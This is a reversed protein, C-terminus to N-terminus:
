ESEMTEQFCHHEGENTLIMYDNSDCRTSSKKSMNSKKLKSQSSEYADSPNEDEPMENELSDDGGLPINSEDRFQQDRVYDHPEDNQVNDYIINTNPGLLWVPDVDPMINDKETMTSKEMKNIDEITKIKWSWQM